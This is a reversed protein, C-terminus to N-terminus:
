SPGTHKRAANKERYIIKQFSNTEKAVVGSMILLCILNPIAMLGNMADSLNWVDQLATTAGVFTILCFLLRYCVIVRPSRVLYELSKEGYYEWGLITSFAFLATGISVIWSGASHLSTHFAYITLNAGELLVGNADKTGLVGSSAIVLGTVTCIVITDFFTGTMNIYGQRAPHDTRAAAAAIPASGLGAENSFVGRAVGYRMANAIISGSVGGLIAQGTSAADNPNFALSFIQSIGAPLNQINLIIVIIGAVFYFIAMVPVIFGCVKGITKVGGLLVVLSLGATILGTIWAPVEFATNLAESISNAQTMNGIGFSALVTFVAFFFALIKGIKKNKLGDRLVYMPGGSMEGSANRRRFKVALTSEAYKTSLGFIASIWMWFLAGPGGLVMATAVGVINGTGITAALATMLSQFSSIDGDKSSSTKESRHFVSRLAFGLNRWPLFKLRITLFIGTGVLLFLMVPGWIFSNVSSIVDRFTM